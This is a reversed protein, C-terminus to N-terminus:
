KHELKATLDIVQQQWNDIQRQIAALTYEKSRVSEAGSVFAETKGSVFAETKAKDAIASALCQKAEALQAQLQEPEVSWQEYTKTKGEIVAELILEVSEDLARKGLGWSSNGLADQGLDEIMFRWGAEKVAVVRFNPTNICVFREKM